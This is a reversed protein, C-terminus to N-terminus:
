FYFNEKISVDIHKKRTRKYKRDKTEAARENM